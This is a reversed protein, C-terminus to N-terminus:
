VRSKVFDEIKKVAHHYSAKLGGVSTDLIDSIEKYSLEDFYRLVFVQKQKEPLTELAQKLIITAKDGDFYSDAELNNAMGSAGDDLDLTAYKKKKKLFSICENTAIRYLWTYLKAEGRFKQIGKYVKIFTNQMVEDADDHLNVMQRIHWYLREQYTQVLARFGSEFSQANRLQLLIKKETDKNDHSQGLLQGLLKQKKAVKTM